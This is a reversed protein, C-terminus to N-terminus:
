RRGPKVIFSIGALFFVASIVCYIVPFRSGRITLDYIVPANLLRSVMVGALAGIFGITLNVIWGGKSFGSTLQALTGFIVAILLMLLFDTSYNMHGM